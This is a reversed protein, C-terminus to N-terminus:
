RNERVAGSIGPGNANPPSAGPLQEAIRHQLEDM